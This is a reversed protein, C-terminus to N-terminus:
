SSNIKCKYQIYVCLECLLENNFEAGNESLITKSAVFIAICNKIFAEAIEEKKKSKVVAAVSFRTAHNVMNLIHVKEMAKLDVAVVDNFDRSLSFGGVPGLKPKKCKTM